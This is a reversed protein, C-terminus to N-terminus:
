LAQRELRGFLREEDLLSVSHAQWRFVKHTCASGVSNGVAPKELRNTEVSCVGELEDVEFAWVALTGDTKMKEVIVMRPYARDCSEDSQTDLAYDSLKGLVEKLFVKLLMEGAVNIIGILTSNSRHPLTHAPTAPLVQRCLSAPLAFWEQCLRFILVTIRSSDETNTLPAAVQAAREEQYEHPSPRQLLRDSSSDSLSCFTQEPRKHKSLANSLREIFLDATANM